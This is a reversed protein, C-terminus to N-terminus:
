HRSKMYQWFRSKGGEGMYDIESKKPIHLWDPVEAYWKGHVPWWILEGNEARENVSGKIRLAHAELAGNGTYFWTCDPDVVRGDVVCYVSPHYDGEVEVDSNYYEKSLQELLSDYKELEVRKLKGEARNQFYFAVANNTMPDLYWNIDINTTSVMLKFRIRTIIEGSSLKEIIILDGDSFKIECDSFIELLTDLDLNGDRIYESLPVIGVWVRYWDKVEETQELRNSVAAFVENKTVTRDGANAPLACGVALFAAAAITTLTRTKM